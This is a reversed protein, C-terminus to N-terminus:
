GNSIKGPLSILVGYIALSISFYRYFRLFHTINAMGDLEVLKIGDLEM